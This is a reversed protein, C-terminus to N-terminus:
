VCGNCLTAHVLNESSTLFEKNIVHVMYTGHEQHGRKRNNVWKFSKSIYTLIYVYIKQSLCM